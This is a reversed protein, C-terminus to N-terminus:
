LTRFYELIARSEEETLHQNAMLTGKFQILLEKAIPDKKVMEEPNLIMNMVWEPSRKELIREMSPGIFKRNTRHCSSCQNKFLLKGEKVLQKDIKEELVISKVPGIGKNKLDIAIEEKKVVKTEKVKEKSKKVVAKKQPIENTSKKKDEGNCSIFFLIVVIAFLNRLKM